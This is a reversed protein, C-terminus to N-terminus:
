WVSDVVSGGYTRYGWCALTVAVLPTIDALPKRLDWAFGGALTRLKTSAAAEDLEPQGLHRVEKNQVADFLWGCAQAYERAGVTWVKVGAARLDDILSGAPSAPDVVVSGGNRATIAAMGPVIWDTGRRNEVTELHLITDERAGCAGITATTRDVSVAIGFMPTGPIQSSDDACNEWSGAPFVNGDTPDADWWGLRERAFEEPPLSRREREIAKYEIRRGLQPNAREWRRVDDLRCGPTNPLHRCAEGQACGGPLDDAWELYVLGPDGGPQGRDRIGRLVASEVLGASSGYVIQGHPRASMTPVLSGMHKPTLAFAEDLVVKDGTLGRGGTKTRAKFKVRQGTLLEIGEDGNGRTISKVRKRLPDCGEILDSLDRHAESATSFEHASWIILRQDTVFLWGLACQKFLGTKINQRPAIIAAEDSSPTRDPKLGFIADLALQQEPDPPFSALECIGAVEPGLTEDYPPVSAYAPRVLTSATV